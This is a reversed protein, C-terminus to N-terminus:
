TNVVTAPEGPKSLDHETILKIKRGLVGGAANIEEIAMLTGEHSSQGFTAEKGTLSAYEGVKIPNPGLNEGGAPGCGTVVLTLVSLTLVSLAAPIWFLQPRWNRM